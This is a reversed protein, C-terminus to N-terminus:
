RELKKIVKAVTKKDEELVCQLFIYQKKFNLNYQITFKICLLQTICM